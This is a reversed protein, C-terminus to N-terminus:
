NKQREEAAKLLGSISEAELTFAGKGKLITGKFSVGPDGGFPDTRVSPRVFLFRSAFKESKEDGGQVASEFVFENKSSQLVLFKVLKRDQTQVNILQARVGDPLQVKEGVVEKGDKALKFEITNEALRALAYQGELPKIMRSISKVHEQIGEIQEKPLSQELQPM